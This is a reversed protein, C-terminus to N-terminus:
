LSLTFINQVFLVVCGQFNTLIYIYFQFKCFWLFNNTYTWIKPGTAMSICVISFRRSFIDWTGLRQSLKQKYFYYWSLFYKSIFQSFNEKVVTAITVLLFRNEKSVTGFFKSVIEEHIWIRSMNESWTQYLFLLAALINVLFCICRNESFRCCLGSNFFFQKKKEIFNLMEELNMKLFIRWYLLAIDLHRFLITIISFLLFWNGVRLFHRRFISFIKWQFLKKM